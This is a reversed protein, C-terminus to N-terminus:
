TTLYSPPSPEPTRDIRVAPLLLAILALIVIWLVAAVWSRRRVPRVVVTPEVPDFPIVNLAGCECAVHAWGREDLLARDRAPVIVGRGCSPCDFVEAFRAPHVLSM